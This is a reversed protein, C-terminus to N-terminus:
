SFSSSRKLVVEKDISKDEGNELILQETKFMDIIEDKAVCQQQLKAIKQKLNTIQQEQYRINETLSQIRQQVQVIDEVDSEVTEQDESDKMARIGEELRSIYNDKRQLQQDLNYNSDVLTQVQARLQVIETDNYNKESLNSNDLQLRRLLELETNKEAIEAVLANVTDTLQNYPVEKGCGQM